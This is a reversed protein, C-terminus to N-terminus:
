GPHLTHLRQGCLVLHLAASPGQQAPRGARERAERPVSLEWLHQPYWRSRRWPPVPSRQLCSSLSFLYNADNNYTILKTTIIEHKLILENQWKSPKTCSQLLELTNPISNSCDQSLWENLESICKWVTIYSLKILLVPMVLLSILEHCHCWMFTDWIVLLEVM